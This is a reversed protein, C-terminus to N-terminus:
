STPERRRRLVAIEGASHILPRGYTGQLLYGREEFMAIIRASTVPDVVGIGGDAAKPKGAVSNLSVVYEVDLRAVQDAYHAVVDPEMEQFSYSNVFVDFPGSVDEIRWNPLCASRPVDIPGTSAVEPGYTLVREDGFLETLYYSAVTVLPPIDLNVYRVDPDRSMLVEGLVGFGGGIELVSRPPGDVHRSLAAMLLLYNLYAKGFGIEPNGPVLPFRQWPDGVLSEGVAALDAPWREQDWALRAADFDRHALFIGNLAPSVYDGRAAPNVERARRLTQRITRNTFGNGYTPLFWFGARSWRKFRSLGMRTFDGLLEDLGPGWFSTPRYVPDCSRLETLVRDTMEAWRPDDDVVYEPPTPASPEQKAPRIPGAARAPLRRGVARRLRPPMWDDAFARVTTRTSSDRPM